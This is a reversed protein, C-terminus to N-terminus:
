VRACVCIVRVCACACMCVHVCSYMCVHVCACMCVHVCACVWVRVHVCARACSQFRVSVIGLCYEAGTMPLAYPEARTGSHAIRTLNLSLNRLDYISLCVYAHIIFLRLISARVCALCVRMCVCQDVRLCLFVYLYVFVCAFVCVFTRACV